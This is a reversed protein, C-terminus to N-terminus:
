PDHRVDGRWLWSLLMIVAIGGLSFWTIAYQLHNNPPRPLDRAPDPSAPPGLAVVTFPAVAGLGLGSAIRHPDLTYFRRGAPDDRASLWGAHEAPRVYGTISAEGGRPKPPYAEWGLDVLLPPQGTRLLPEVLHTGMVPNGRADDRVDDEYSMAHAPDLTGRVLVKTFGAPHPALPVPPSHEAADIRALLAQKWALRRVQWIGLGTTICVVLFTALM